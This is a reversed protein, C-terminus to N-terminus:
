ALVEVLFGGPARVYFTWAHHHEPPEVEFGDEKLRRYIENVHEESPQIFGIHFTPPYTVGAAPASKMMTLVLGEDDFLLAFGKRGQGQEGSRLGFYNTLFAKAAQVDTVTLNLHNIKM